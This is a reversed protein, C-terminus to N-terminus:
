RDNCAFSHVEMGDCDSGHNDRCHAMANTMASARTNGAGSTWFPRYSGDQFYNQISMVVGCRGRTTRTDSVGNRDFDYYGDDRFETSFVRYVFCENRDDYARARSFGRDCERKALNIADDISTSNRAITAPVDYHEGAEVYSVEGVVIAGYLPVGSASSAAPPAKLASVIPSDAGWQMKAISTATLDSFGAVSRRPDAGAELLVRIIALGNENFKTGVVALSHLPSFGKADLLNPDAGQLLCRKVDSVTAKEFFSYSGSRANWCDAFVSPTALGSLVFTLLFGKRGIM